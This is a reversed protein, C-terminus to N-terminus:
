VIQSAMHELDELNVACTMVAHERKLSDMFQKMESDSLQNSNVKEIMQWFTM